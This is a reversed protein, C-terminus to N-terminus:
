PKQECRVEKKISSVIVSTDRKVYVDYSLCCINTISAAPFFISFFVSIVEM